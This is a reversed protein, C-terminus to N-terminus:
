EWISKSSCFISRFSNNIKREYEYAEDLLKMGREKDKESTINGVTHSIWNEFADNTLLGDNSLSLEVLKTKSSIKLADSYKRSCNAKSYTRENTLDNPTESKEFLEHFSFEFYSRVFSLLNQMKGKWQM